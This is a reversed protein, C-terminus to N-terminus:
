KAKKTAAVFSKEGYAPMTRMRGLGKNAYWISFALM